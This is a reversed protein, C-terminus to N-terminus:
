VRDLLTLCAMAILLAATGFKIPRHWAHVMRQATLSTLVGSVMLFVALAVVPIALVAAIASLSQTQYGAFEAAFYGATIPNTLATCFGAGFEVLPSRLGRLGVRTDPRLRLVLVAVIVLLGVGLVDIGGRWRLGSITMATMDIMVALATAGAAIGLVIPLAARFGRLAALGAVALMNPGPVALVAAYGLVFGLMHSSMREGAMQRCSSSAIM